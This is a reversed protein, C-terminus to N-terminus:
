WKQRLKGAANVWGPRLRKASDQVFFVFSRASCSVRKNRKLDHAQDRDREDDRRRDPHRQVRQGVQLSHVLLRALGGVVDVQGHDLGDADGPEGDLVDEPECTYM